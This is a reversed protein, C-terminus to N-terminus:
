NSYRVVNNLEKPFRNKLEILKSYFKDEQESPFMYQPTYQCNYEFDPELYIICDIDCIAINQDYDSFLPLGCSQRLIREPPNTKFFSFDSIFYESKKIPPDRFRFCYIVGTHNGLLIKEHTATGDKNWRFKYTAFFLASEIDFTVDLGKTQNAYHQEVRMIDHSFINMEYQSTELERAFRLISFEEKVQNSDFKYYESKQRFIGPLISLELGDKDARFPNSIKRKLKYESTQGRFSMYGREILDKRRKDNLIENLEEKNKVRYSIFEGFRKISGKGKAHNIFDDIDFSSSFQKSGYLKDSVKKWSQGNFPDVFNRLIFGSSIIDKILEENVNRDKLESILHEEMELKLQTCRIICIWLASAPPM